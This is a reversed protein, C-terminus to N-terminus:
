FLRGASHEDLKAVFLVVPLVSTIPIGSLTGEQCPGAGSSGLECKMKLVSKVPGLAGVGMLWASFEVEFQQGVSGWLLERVRIM